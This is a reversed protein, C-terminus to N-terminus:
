EEDIGPQRKKVVVAKLNKSGMVAGTGKRGNARNTMNTISAYRVQNEGAPGIQAIEVQEDALAEKIMRESEGTVKGWVASADMLRVDKEQLWLYVPQNSRGRFLVADYGNHKLQVSFCGDSQSDGITDTLPSKTTVVLRNQEGVSFILLNDPSLPDIGTKMEQLAIYLGLSSGGPYLRFIESPIHRVTVTGLTLDVDLITADPFDNM